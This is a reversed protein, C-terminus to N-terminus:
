SRLEQLRAAMKKYEDYKWDHGGSSELKLLKSQVAEEAEYKWPPVGFMQEFQDRLQRKTLWDGFRPVWWLLADLVVVLKRLLWKLANGIM